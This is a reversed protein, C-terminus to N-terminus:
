ARLEKWADMTRMVAIEAALTKERLESWRGSVHLRDDSHGAAAEAERCEEVRLMAECVADAARARMEARRLADWLTLATACTAEGM